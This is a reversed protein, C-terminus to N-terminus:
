CPSIIPCHWEQQYAAVSVNLVYSLQECRSNIFKTYNVAKIEDKIRLAYVGKGEDTASTGCCSRDHRSNWVVYLRGLLIYM